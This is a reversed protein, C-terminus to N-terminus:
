EVASVIRYFLEAAYLLAGEDFGFTDSHLPSNYNKDRCGNWVMCGDVHRTYAGFDEAMYVPEADTVDPCLRKVKSVAFPSNITPEYVSGVAVNHSTGFKNDSEVLLRALNMMIEESHASDFFRLTCKLLADSAVVNRAAGASLTGAHLLTNNKHKENVSPFNNVIYAACKLADLGKQPEACHAARGTIAIDFEVTGAFMPGEVTSLTGTDLSPSMHVAYIENVGDLVGADIMTQAGGEGEEGYQFILRTSRDPPSAAFFEALTLLAATHGDHGCAHMYGNDSRFAVPTRECIPLADTDCRLAVLPRKVRGAIDCYVGTRVTKYKFGAAKLVGCIYECTKFEKGSPEPNRHLLRRHKVLGPLLEKIRGCVEM